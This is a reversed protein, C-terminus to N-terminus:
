CTLGASWSGACGWRAPRWPVWRCHMFNPVPNPEGQPLELCDTNTGAMHQWEETHEALFVLRQQSACLLLLFDGTPVHLSRSRAGWVAPWASALPETPRWARGAARGEWGLGPPLKPTHMLSTPLRAQRHSCRHTQRRAHTHVPLQPDCGSACARHTWPSEVHWVCMLHPQCM